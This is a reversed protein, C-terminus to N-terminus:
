SDAFRIRARWRFRVEGTESIILVGINNSQITGIAGDTTTSDYTIPINVSKNMKYSIMTSLTTGIGTDANYKSLAWVKDSLVRFRSSYALNRFSQIDAQALIEAVTAPTGNAQKDLFVVVRCRDAGSGAYMM